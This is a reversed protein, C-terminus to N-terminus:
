LLSAVVIAVLPAVVGVREIASRGRGLAAHLRDSRSSHENPTAWSKVERLNRNREALRYVPMTVSLNLFPHAKVAMLGLSGIVARACAFPQHLSPSAPGSTKLAPPLARARPSNLSGGQGAPM